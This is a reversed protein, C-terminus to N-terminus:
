EGLKGEDEAGASRRNGGLGRTGARGYVRDVGCGVYLGYQGDRAPLAADLHNSLHPRLSWFFFLGFVAWRSAIPM